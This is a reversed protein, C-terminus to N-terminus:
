YRLMPRLLTCRRDHTLIRLIRDHMHSMLISTNCYPTWCRGTVKHFKLTVLTSWNRTKGDMTMGHHRTSRIRLHLNPIQAHILFQMRIVTGTSNWCRHINRLTSKQANTMATMRSDPFITKDFVLFRVHMVCHWCTLYRGQSESWKFINTTNSVIM